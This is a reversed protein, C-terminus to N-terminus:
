WNAGVAVGLWHRFVWVGFVRIFTLSFNFSHFDIFVFFDVPRILSIFYIIEVKVGRHNVHYCIALDRIVHLLRKLDQRIFIWVSGHKM